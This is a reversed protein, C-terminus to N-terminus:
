EDVPKPVKPIWNTLHQAVGEYYEVGMLEILEVFKKVSAFNAGFGRILVINFSQIDKGKAQEQFTEFEDLKVQLHTRVFKIDAEILLDNAMQDFLYESRKKCNELQKGIWTVRAVTGKDQPPTVSVSMSVVRTAFDAKLKIDSVSDKISLTSTLCHDKIVKKIDSKIDRSKTKVLVGLKRSLLLALDSEEEQWSLAADNIYQDSILLPKSTKINEALEKWGPKM